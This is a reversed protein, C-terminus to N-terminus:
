PDRALRVLTRGTRGHEELRQLQGERLSLLAIESGAFVANVLVLAAVLGVQWAYAGM